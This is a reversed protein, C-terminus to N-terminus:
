ISRHRLDTGTTQQVLMAYDLHLIVDPKRWYASFPNCNHYRSRYIKIKKFINPCQDSRRRFEAKKTKKKLWVRFKSVLRSNTGKLTIFRHRQSSGCDIFSSISFPIDDTHNTMQLIRVSIHHWLSFSQKVINQNTIIIIQRSNNRQLFNNDTVNLIIM